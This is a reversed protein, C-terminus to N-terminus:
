DFPDEPQHRTDTRWRKKPRIKPPTLNNSFYYYNQRHRSVQLYNASFKLNKLFFHTSLFPYIMRRCSGPLQAIDPLFSGNTSHQLLFAKVNKERSCLEWSRERRM